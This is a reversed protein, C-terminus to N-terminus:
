SDIVVLVSQDSSMLVSQATSGFVAKGIPSRKRGGIVTYRADQERAYRVIREDPDGILGVPTFEDTVQEALETAIDAALEEVNQKGAPQGTQKVQEQEIDTFESRTLVHVVHLEDDFRDALTRAEEVVAGARETENVAAVIVM